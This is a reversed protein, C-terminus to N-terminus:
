YYSKKGVNRTSARTRRLSLQVQYSSIKSANQSSARTRRLGQSPSSWRTWVNVLNTRVVHLQSVKMMEHGLKTMQHSLECTCQLNAIFIMFNSSLPWVLEILPDHVCFYPWAAEFASAAPYAIKSPRPLNIMTDHMSGYAEDLSHSGEAKFIVWVLTWM